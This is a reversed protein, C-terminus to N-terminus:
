CGTDLVLMLMFTLTQLGYPRFLHLNSVEGPCWSGPYGLQCLCRGYAGGHLYREFMVSLM